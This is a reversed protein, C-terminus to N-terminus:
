LTDIKLEAKFIGEQETISFAHKNPYILSLRRSLNELGIGKEKNVESPDFNNEVSFLVEGAKSKLHMKVYARDTMSEVGHKLANELLTIFLLPTVSNEEEIAQTFEIAVEKKYRIKHLDIYNNLYIVEDELSVKEKEGEYITYRMMDSLKLIVGPAKDSNRVSLSYLNNLTNFFFHPNIQAKLMSLEAKTKQSQLSKIWKWQEYVWLLAFIPIPIILSIIVIEKSETVYVEFSPASLRVFSFYSLVLGYVEFIYYKYKSFFQPTVISVFGIWFGVLFIITLPNDPIKLTSDAILAIILLTILGIIKFVVVRHKKLYHIKYIALGFVFSWFVFYAAFEIFPIDSNLKLIGFYALVYGLVLVILMGFGFGKYKKLIHIM